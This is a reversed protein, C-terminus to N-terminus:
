TISNCIYLHVPVPTKCVQVQTYIDLNLLYSLPVLIFADTASVYIHLDYCLTLLTTVFFLKFFTTLSEYITLLYHDVEALLNRDPSPLLTRQLYM